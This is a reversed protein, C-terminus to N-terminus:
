VFVSFCKSHTMLNMIGKVVTTGFPPIVVEKITYIKGKIGKLDYKPVDLGKMTNRKSVVTSLHVQKWTEGALQLEKETMTVVLHDIVQTGIQVLVREGYKPNLVVLFLMDVKYHPLDSITLKAEIYGRYLISIGGMGELHLMGGILNRLPLIKLGMVTHFGETLASIQFGTDVQAMMKLGEVMVKAEYAHCLLWVLPDPNHYGSEAVLKSTNVSTGPEGGSQQIDQSAPQLVVVVERLKWKFPYKPVWSSLTGLVWMSTEFVSTLLIAYLDVKSPALGDFVEQHCGFVSIVNSLVTADDMPELTVPHFTIFLIYSFCGPCKTLPKFLMKLAGGWDIVVTVDCTM